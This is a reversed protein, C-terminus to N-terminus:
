RRDPRPDRYRTGEREDVLRKTNRNRAQTSLLEGQGQSGYPANPTAVELRRAGRIWKGCPQTGTKPHDAILEGVPHVRRHPVATADIGGDSEKSKNAQRLFQGSDRGAKTGM